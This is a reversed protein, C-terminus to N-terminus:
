QQKCTDQLEKDLNGLNKDDGDIELMKALDDLENGGNANNFGKSVPSDGLQELQDLLDTIEERNAENTYSDGEFVAIIQGVLHYQKKYTDIKESHEEDESHDQLWQIFEAHMEKMPQYLVEKSSMQNLIQLIANDVGEEGDQGGGVNGSEVLQDLLQSLVDDTNKQKEEKALNSDVKSGNEKLRELTKSVVNKFGQPEKSGGDSKATTKSADGLMGLIKQFNAAQEAKEQEKMGGDKMLNSFEKQLDDMMEKVEPDDLEEVANAQKGADASSGEPTSDAELKSPDEDLLDDLEDYEEEADMSTM